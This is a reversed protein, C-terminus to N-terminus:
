EEYFVKVNPEINGIGYVRAKYDKLLEFFKPSLLLLALINTIIPLVTCADSCIWLTTGPMGYVVAIIVMALANIPYLIKYVGIVIQKTKPNKFYFRLISESQAYIGSATTIGFLLVSLALISRGVTGLGLEFASLTLTAGDLGSNWLGSNIVVLGTITCIVFTDIFVEFIGMMGQKVPHNVKASAHIMPATGWGAENSFVSRAMGIKLAQMVSFGAFGGLAATPNLAYEFILAFTRPLESINTLLVVIGGVLYILCMFPVLLSAVKSVRKLGGQILIFLIVTYVVAVPIMNIKFTTAVSETITYTQINVLFGMFFGITFLAAITAAFKKWGKQIALGKQMYYTPGGYPNGDLDKGRYHVALTIETMKIIMGFLGAIWMWFLAGPGGTVVATAVGGINGTGITSGLATSIAELPSIAGKGQNTDEKKCFFHSFAMKISRGFFTFQFFGTKITLYLGTGLIFIVLPTGWFYDYVIVQILDFFNM